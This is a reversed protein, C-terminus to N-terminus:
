NKCYNDAEKSCIFCRGFKGKGGKQEHICMVRKGNEDFKNKMWESSADSFHIEIENCIHNLQL